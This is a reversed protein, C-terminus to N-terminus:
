TGEFVDLLTHLDWKKLKSETFEDMTSTYDLFIVPLKVLTISFILYRHIIHLYFCTFINLYEPFFMFKISTHVSHLKYTGVKMHCAIALILVILKNYLTTPVM